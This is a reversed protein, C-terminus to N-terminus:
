GGLGELRMVRADGGAVDDGIGDQDLRVVRAAKLPM